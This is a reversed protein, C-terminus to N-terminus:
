KGNLESSRSVSAYTTQGKLIEKAGVACCENGAQPLTGPFYYTAFICRQFRWENGRRQLGNNDGRRM